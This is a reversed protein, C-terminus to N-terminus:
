PKIDWVLISRDDSGSLLLNSNADWLLTNVSYAHGNFKAKDLRILIELELNWLKITKDRSASALLNQNPSLAIDYIAYNHAPVSNTNKYLNSTTPEWLNLYADRGGTVISQNPLVISCNTSLGHSAFEQKFNGSALEVIRTFGDGCSLLLENKPSHVCLHRIKSNCVKIITHLEADDVHGIGLEGEGSSAYFYTGDSILKFIASNFIKMCKIEKRSVLDIWHVEGQGNGILLLKREQLHLISYPITQLKISFSSPLG